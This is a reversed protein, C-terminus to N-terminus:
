NITGNKLKGIKGIEKFKEVAEMFEFILYDDEINCRPQPLYLEKNREIYQAINQRSVNLYKAIQNAPIKMSTGLLIIERKSSQYYTDSLMVRVIPKIRDADIDYM